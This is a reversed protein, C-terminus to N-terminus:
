TQSNQKDAEILIAREALPTSSGEVAWYDPGAFSGSGIDGGFEECILRCITSLSYDKGDYDWRVRQADLFTALKAKENNISLGPRPLKILHLRTGSRLVDNAVLTTISRGRRTISPQPGGRVAKERKQVIYDSAAPLPIVQEIDLYRKGDIQYPKVEMCRINLDRENLWLVTTTIEKSFSPAMLIIQPTNSISIDEASAVELFKILEQRAETPTSVGEDKAIKGRSLLKDYAEVIQEFDLTSLMAAYRIAQLEMHGGDEISKLEIVVINADKDLALLDVRRLSDQWNSFEEAFILLDPAIAKSNDRLLAQLDRREKMQMDSFTSPNINTLDNEEEIRYLPMFYEVNMRLRLCDQLGTSTKM